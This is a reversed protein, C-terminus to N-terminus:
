IYGKYKGAFKPDFIHEILKIGVPLKVNEKKIEFEDDETEPDLSDITFDPDRPNYWFCGLMGDEFEKYPFVYEEWFNGDLTRGSLLSWQGMKLM